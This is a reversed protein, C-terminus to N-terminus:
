KDPQLRERSPETNERLPLPTRHRALPAPVAQYRSTCIRGAVGLRHPAAKPANTTTTTAAIIKSGPADALLGTVPAAKVVVLEFASPVPCQIFPLSFTLQLM